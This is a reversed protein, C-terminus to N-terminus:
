RLAHRLAQKALYYVTDMLRALVWRIFETTLDKTLDIVIGMMELIKRMLSKVYSAVEKSIKAAQSMAMAYLDLSTSVNMVAAQFAVGALYLAKKLVYTLADQLMFMGPMTIRMVSYSTELWREIQADNAKRHAVKRLDYWQSKGAVVNVYNDIYHAQWFLARTGPYDIGYENGPLPVHTFPWIPVMPVPDIDHSVRYINAAGIRTTLSRAFADSGVRPCGFTYLITNVSMERKAWDALLTAVAGGLSHGVCHITAPKNNRIFTILDTKFSAFVKNFGSHVLKGDAFSVGAHADTVWDILKSTGRITILADKEFSTGPLGMTALGFGSDVQWLTFGSKGRFSQSNTINFNKTISNAFFDGVQNTSLIAYIGRAAEVAQSPSLASM